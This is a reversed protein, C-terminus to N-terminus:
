GTKKTGAQEVNKSLALKGKLQVMEARMAVIEHKIVQSKMFTGKTKMLAFRQQAVIALEQATLSLTGDTYQEEKLNIYSQFEKCPLANLGKFLTDVENDLNAGSVKLQDLNNIFFETIKEVDGVVRAAYADIDNLQARIISITARSDMTALRIIIKLLLPGCTVGGFTYELEYQALSQQARMTLSDWIRVQMMQNNQNARHQADAGTMFRGCQTQLETLEIRGYFKTINPTIIIGSHTANFLVIQQSNNAKNWGQDTAKKHLRKLFPGLTETKVAFQKEGELVPSKGEAYISLNAKKRFDLLNTQGMFVPTWAFSTSASAQTGPLLTSVQGQLTTKKAAALTALQALLDIMPDGATAM